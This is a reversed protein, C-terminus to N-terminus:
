SDNVKLTIGLESFSGRPGVSAVQEINGLYDWYADYYTISIVSDVNWKPVMKGMRFCSNGARRTTYEPSFSIEAVYSATQYNPFPQFHRQGM